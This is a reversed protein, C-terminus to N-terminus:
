TCPPRCTIGRPRLGVDFVVSINLSKVRQTIIVSKTWKRQVLSDHFLESIIVMEFLREM